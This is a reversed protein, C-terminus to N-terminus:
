SKNSEMQKREKSEAYEDLNQQWSGGGISNEKRDQQCIWYKEPCVTM